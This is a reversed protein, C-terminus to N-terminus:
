KFFIFLFFGLFGKFDGFLSSLGLTNSIWGMVLAAGLHKWYGGGAVCCLLLCWFESDNRISWLFSPLLGVLVVFGKSLELKWFYLCCLDWQSSSFGWEPTWLFREWASEQFDQVGWAFGLHWSPHPVGCLGTGPLLEGPM